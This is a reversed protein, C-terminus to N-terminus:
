IIGNKVRIQRMIAYGIMRSTKDSICGGLGYPQQGNYWESARLGPALQNISWDWFDNPVSIKFLYKLRFKLLLYLVSFTKNVGNIPSFISILSNHYQFATSPVVNTYAVIFLMTQFLIYIFIDKITNQARKELLRKERAHELEAKNLCLEEPVNAM